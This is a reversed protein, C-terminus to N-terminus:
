YESKLVEEDTCIDSTSIVVGPKLLSQAKAIHINRSDYYASYSQEFAPDMRAAVSIGAAGQQHISFCTVTGQMAEALKETVAPWLEPNEVADYILGILPLAANEVDM